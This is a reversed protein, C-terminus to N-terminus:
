QVVELEYATVVAHLRGEDELFKAEPLAAVQNRWQWARVLRAQEILDALLPTPLDNLALYRSDEEVLVALADGAYGKHRDWLHLLYEQVTGWDPHAIAWKMGAVAATRGVHEVPITTIEDLLSAITKDSTMSVLYDILAYERLWDHTWRYSHTTQAVLVGERHLTVFGDTIEPPCAGPRLLLEGRLTQQAMEEVARRKQQQSRDANGPSRHGISARLVTRQWFAEIVQFATVEGSDTLPMDESTVVRAYLALLLPTRLARLLSQNSPVPLNVREFERRVQTETLPLLQQVSLGIDQLWPHATVVEQRATVVLTLRPIRLFRRVLLSWKERQENRVEDLGDICVWTPGLGCLICVLCLLAEITEEDTDRAEVLFVHHPNRRISQSAFAQRSTVTKGVGVTATLICSFPGFDDLREELSWVQQPANPLRAWCVGQVPHNYGAASHFRLLDVFQETAQLAFTGVSVAQLFETASYRAEGEKCVCISLEGTIYRDIVEGTGSTFTSTALLGVAEELEEMRYLELALRGLLDKADDLSLPPPEDDKASPRCLCYIAEALATEPCRVQGPSSNPVTLSQGSCLAVMGRLHSLINGQKDPDTVWGVTLRGVPIGSRVACRIRRYFIFRDERTIETDKCERLHTADDDLLFLVDWAPGNVGARGEIAFEKIKIPAPYGPLHGAAISSLVQFALYRQQYIYGTLGHAGGSM